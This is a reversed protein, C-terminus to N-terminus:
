RPAVEVLRRRRCRCRYVRVLKDGWKRVGESRGALSSGCGLCEPRTYELRAMPRSTSGYFGADDLNVSRLADEKRPATTPEPQSYNQHLQSTPGRPLATRTM